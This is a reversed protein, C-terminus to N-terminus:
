VNLRTSTVTSKVLGLLAEGYKPVSVKVPDNPQFQPFLLPEPHSTVDPLKTTEPANAAPVYAHEAPQLLPTSPLPISILRVLPVVLKASPKSLRNPSKHRAPLVPQPM